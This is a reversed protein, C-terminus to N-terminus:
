YSHFILKQQFMDYYIRVIGHITSNYFLTEQDYIFEGSNPIVTRLIESTISEGNFTRYLGNGLHRVRYTISTGNNTVYTFEEEVNTDNVKDIAAFLINENGEIM